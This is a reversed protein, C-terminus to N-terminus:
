SHPGGALLKAECIAHAQGSWGFGFDLLFRTPYLYLAGRTQKLIRMRFDNKRLLDNLIRIRFCALVNLVFPVGVLKVLQTLTLRSKSVWPWSFTTTGKSREWVLGQLEVDERLRAHWARVLLLYQFYVSDQSPWRFMPLM